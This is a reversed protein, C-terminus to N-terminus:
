RGWEKFPFTRVDSIKKLIKCLLLRLNLNLIAQGVSLKSFHAIQSLKQGLKVDGQVTLARSRLVLSLCPIQGRHDYGKQCVHHSPRIVLLLVNLVGLSLTLALPSLFSSVNGPCISHVHCLAPLQTLPM